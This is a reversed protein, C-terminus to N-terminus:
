NRSHSRSFESLTELKALKTMNIISLKLKKLIENTFFFFSRTYNRLFFPFVTPKRANDSHGPDTHIKRKEYFKLKIGNFKAQKSVDSPIKQM